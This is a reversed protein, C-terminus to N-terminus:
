INTTNKCSLQVSLTENFFKTDHLSYTALQAEQETAMMIWAMTDKGPQLTIKVVEGHESFLLYLNQKLKESSM